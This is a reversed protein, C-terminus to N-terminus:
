PTVTEVRMVARDRPPLTGEAVFAELAACDHWVTHTRGTESALRTAKAIADLESQRSPSVFPQSM